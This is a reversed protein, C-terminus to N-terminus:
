YSGKDRSFPFLMCMISCAGAFMVVTTYFGAALIGANAGDYFMLFIKWWVFIALIGAAFRAAVALLGPIIIIKNESKPRARESHRLPDKLFAKHEICLAIVWLTIGLLPFVIASQWFLKWINEWEWPTRFMAYSLVLALCYVALANIWRLSRRNISFVINNIKM